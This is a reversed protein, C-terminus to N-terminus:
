INLPGSCKRQGGLSCKLSLIDSVGHELTGNCKSHFERKEYRSELERMLRRVEDRKAAGERVVAAM